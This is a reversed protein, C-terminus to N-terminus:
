FPFERNWVDTQKIRDNYLAADSSVPLYKRNGSFDGDLKEKELGLLLIYFFRNNIGEAFLEREIEQFIVHKLDGESSNYRHAGARDRITNLDAVAGGTDGMENRILARHLIFGGLRILMENELYYQLRGTFPPKTGKIYHTWKQPYVCHQTVDGPQTEETEKPDKFYAKGRLDDEDSYVKVWSSYTWRIPRYTSMTTLPKIPWYQFFGAWYSGGPRLDSTTVNQYNIEFIGEKSNGLLVKDVVEFPDAALEYHGCNIVSDAAALAVPLLDTRGGIQAAWFCVESLVAYGTYRTPFQKNVILNGDADVLHDQDVPLIEIAKYLDSVIQDVIELMPTRGKADTDGDHLILPADGWYQIVVKYLYARLVLAQSAYYNIREQPIPTRYINDLLFNCSAIANYQHVWSFRVDNIPFDSMDNRSIKEFDDGKIDFPIGRDRYCISVSGMYHRFSAHMKMLAAQAEADTKWYNINTVVDQPEETLYNDCSQLSFFGSIFLFLFLIKTKM